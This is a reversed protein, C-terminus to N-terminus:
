AMIVVRKIGNRGNLYALKAKEGGAQKGTNNRRYGNSRKSKAVGNNNENCLTMVVTIQIVYM